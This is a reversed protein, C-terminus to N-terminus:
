KFIELRYYKASKDDLNLKLGEHYAFNSNEKYSICFGWGCGPKMYYSKEDTSIKKQYEFGSEILENYLTKMEKADFGQLSFYEQKDRDGIFYKKRGVIETLVFSGDEPIPTSTLSKFNKSVIFENVQSTNLKM